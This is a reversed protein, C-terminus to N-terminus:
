VGWMAASYYVSCSVSSFRVVSCWVLYRQVVVCHDCTVAGYLMPYAVHIDCVVGCMTGCQLVSCLVAGCWVAGCAHASVAHVV